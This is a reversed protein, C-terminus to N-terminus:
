WCYSPKKNQKSLLIWSIFPMLFNLTKCNNITITTTIFKITGHVTSAFHHQHHSFLTFLALTRSKYQWDIAAPSMKFLTRYDSPKFVALTLKSCHCWLMSQTNYSLDAPDSRHLSTRWVVSLLVSQTQSCDVLQRPRRHRSCRSATDLHNETTSRFCCTQQWLVGNLQNYNRELSLSSKQQM